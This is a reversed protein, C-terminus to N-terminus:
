EGGVLISHLDSIMNETQEYTLEFVQSYYQIQEPTFKYM